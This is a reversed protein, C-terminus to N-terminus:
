NHLDSWPASLATAAEILGVTAANHPFNGWLEGTESHVTDSVLGAHNLHKLANEFLDRAEERRNLGVLARIYRFTASNKAVKSDKSFLIQKNRLLDREIATVTGKFKDDSKGVFGIDALSL